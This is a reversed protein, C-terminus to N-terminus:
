KTCIARAKKRVEAGSTTRGELIDILGKEIRKKQWDTLVEDNLSTSSFRIKMEELFATIIDHQKQTEPYIIINEM